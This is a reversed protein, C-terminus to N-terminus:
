QNREAHAVIWGKNGTPDTQQAIRLTEYIAPAPKSDGKQPLRVVAVFVTPENPLGRRFGTIEYDRRDRDYLALGGQHTEYQRHAADSLFAEAGSGTNRADLFDRVFQYARLGEAEREAFDRGLVIQIDTQADSPLDGIEAGPLWTERIEEAHNRNAPECLIQSISRDEEADWIVLFKADRISELDEFMTAAYPSIVDLERGTANQVEFTFSVRAEESTPTPGPVPTHSPSGSPAAQPEPIYEGLRYASIALLPGRAGLRTEDSQKREPPWSNPAYILRVSAIPHSTWRLQGPLEIYFREAPPQFAHVSSIDHKWAGVALIGDPVFGLDGAFVANPGYDEFPLPQEISFADSSAKTIVFIGDTRGRWRQMELVTPVNPTGADRALGPNWIRVVAFGRGEAQDTADVQVDDREWQMVEAAFVEAVIRPSLYWPQHGEDVAQQIRDIEEATGDPWIPLNTPSAGSGPRTPTNPAFATYALSVGAAGIVLSVVGAIVRRGRRHQIARRRVAALADQDAHLSRAARDLRDHLDAM